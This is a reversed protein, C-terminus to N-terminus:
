ATWRGLYWPLGTAEASAAAIQAFRAQRMYEVRHWEFGLRLGDPTPRWRFKAQLVEPEEGLYLPITVTFSQPAVVRSTIKSENEFVFTMDGNELRTRAKFSSSQVAELDRSLEIMHAPEPDTIDIANEEIFRAFDEQPHLKGAMANWRAFEESPRLTLQCIHKRAGAEGAALAQNHPHWDLVATITGKDYDAFIASYDSDLHRKAYHELSGRADVTVTAAARPPLRYPDSIDKADFDRPLLLFSRGDETDIQPKTLTNAAIVAKIADSYPTVPTDM